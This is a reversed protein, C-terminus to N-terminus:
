AGTAGAVKGGEKRSVLERVKDQVVYEYFEEFFSKFEKIADEDRDKHKLKDLPLHQEVAKVYAVREYLRTKYVPILYSGYLKSKSIEDAISDAIQQMRSSKPIIKNFVVGGCLPLDERDAQRMQVVADNFFDSVFIRFSVRGFEDPIIPVLFYDAAALAMRSLVGFTAPPDIFVHSYKMERLIPLLQRLLMIWPLHGGAAAEAVAEREIAIMKTDGPLLHLRSSWKFPIYAGREEESTKVKVIYQDLNISEQPVHPKLLRRLLGYATLGTKELNKQQEHGLLYVSAGAQADLDIVLVNDKGGVRSALENATIVTLTTKGVGGKVSLFTVVKM